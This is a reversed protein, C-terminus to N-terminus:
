SFSWWGDRSHGPTLSTATDEEIMALALDIGASVGASTWVRGGQSLDRRSSRSQSVTALRASRWEERASAMWRAPGPWARVSLACGIGEDRKNTVSAAFDM